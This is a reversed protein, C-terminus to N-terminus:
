LSARFFGLLAALLPDPDDALITEAHLGGPIVALTKPERARAYLVRAHKEPILWDDSGHAVLLPVPAIRAVLRSPSQEPLPLTPRVRTLRRDRRAISPLSRVLGRTLFNHDLIFLRHPTGVLAVADYARHLAAAVCTHYGGFSFGLGGVRAYDTRLFRVLEALDEPELRGFTFAGQSDGHGRVDVTIVDALISLREALLRHEAQGRDM